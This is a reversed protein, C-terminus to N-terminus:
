PLGQWAASAYTRDLRAEDVVGEADVDLIAEIDVV